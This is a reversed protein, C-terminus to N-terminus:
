CSAELEPNRMLNDTLNDTPRSELHVLPLDAVLTMHINAFNLAEPAGFGITLAEPQLVAFKQKESKALAERLSCGAM